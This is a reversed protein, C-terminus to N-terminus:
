WFQQLKIIKKGRQYSIIAETRTLVKFHNLIASVNSVFMLRAFTDQNQPRLIPWAGWFSVDELIYIWQKYRLNDMLFDFIVSIVDPCIVLVSTRKNGFVADGSKKQRM